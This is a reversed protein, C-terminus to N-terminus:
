RLRESIWANQPSTALEERFYRELEATLSRADDSPGFRRGLRMRYRIPLRPRRFLPWGKALFASDQEIILTQVPVGAHRAIIAVSGKFENVPATVSRTGEPFLLVSAGRGLEAVADAIMHRTPENGIYGALRAGAGLFLNNKLSSKMVCVVNADHAIVFLADILSPHNPALIMPPAGRLAQLARLDLRYAGMARLTWVYFRFGVLIGRRGCRVGLRRPLLLLPVAIVTWALCILGLLTLSLYLALTEAGARLAAIM